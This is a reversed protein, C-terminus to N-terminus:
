LPSVGLSKYKTPQHLGKNKNRKLIASKKSSKRSIEMLLNDIRALLFNKRTSRYISCSPRCLLSKMRLLLTTTALNTLRGSCKLLFMGLMEWWKVLIKNLKTLSFNSTGSNTKLKSAMSAVLRALSGYPKNTEMLTNSSTRM